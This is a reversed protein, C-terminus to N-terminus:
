CNVSIDIVSSIKSGYRPEGLLQFKANNDDHAGRLTTNKRCFCCCPAQGKIECGLLSSLRLQVFAVALGPSIWAVRERESGHFALYLVDLVTAPADACGRLVPICNSFPSLVLRPPSYLWMGAASAASM